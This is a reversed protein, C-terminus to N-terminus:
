MYGIIDGMLKQLFMLGIIAVMVSLDLGGMPPLVRRIPALFPETLQHFVLELPNRGQSVWSLIARIILVYFVLMFGEKLVTIFAQILLVLPNAIVVGYAVLAVTFVKLAAVLLALVLTATDLRGISPLIRRMPAVIPHTAKVIFQSFPNYFDAQALQLWLRILVVMLYLGFLTSILFEIANM